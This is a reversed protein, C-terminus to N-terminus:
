MQNIKITKVYTFIGPLWPDELFIGLVQREGSFGNPHNQRRKKKGSFLFGLLMMGSTFGFGLGALFNRKYMGKVARLQTALFMHGYAGHSQIFWVMPHLRTHQGYGELQHNWGVQFINTLSPIKRLYPHFYFM